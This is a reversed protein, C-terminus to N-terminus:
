ILIVSYKLIFLLIQPPNPSNKELRIKIDIGFKNQLKYM